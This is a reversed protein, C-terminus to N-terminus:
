PEPDSTPSSARLAASTLAVRLSALADDADTAAAWVEATRGSDLVADVLKGSAKISRDYLKGFYRLAQREGETRAAAVLRAARAACREAIQADSWHYRAGEYLEARMAEYMETRPNTPRPTPNTTTM